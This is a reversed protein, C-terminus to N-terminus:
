MIGRLAKMENVRKTQDHVQFLFCRSSHRVMLPLEYISFGEVVNLTPFLASFMCHTSLLFSCPEAVETRLSCDTMETSLDTM